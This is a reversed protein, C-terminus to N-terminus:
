CEFTILIAYIGNLPDFINSVIQPGQYELMARGQSRSHHITLVYTTIYDLDLYRSQCIEGAGGMVDRCWTNYLSVRVGTTLLHKVLCKHVGIDCEVADYTPGAHIDVWTCIMVHIPYARRSM